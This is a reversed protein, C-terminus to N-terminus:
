LVALAAETVSPDFQTKTCRVIERLAYERSKQHRYPRDATISDFTTAVHIIRAGLPINDGTLGDPYGKGDVREHHHRILPIAKRFDEAKNLVAAGQDPHKRILKIENASLKVPKDVLDNYFVSQGIDHLLAGIHLISKEDAHFGMKESIRLAHSAVRKSRGRTWWRRSDLVHMIDSVVNIFVHELASHSVCVEDIIDILVNKDQQSRELELRLHTVHEQVADCSGKQRAIDQVSGVFCVIDGRQDRVAKVNESITILNGNRTRALSEFNIASHQREFICRLKDYSDSEAYWQEWPRPFEEVFEAPTQFGFISALATNAAVFDGDPSFVYLGEAANDFITQYIDGPIKNGM